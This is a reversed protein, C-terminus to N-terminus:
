LLLFSCGGAELSLTWLGFGRGPAAQAQTRKWKKRGLAWVPLRGRGPGPLPGPRRRPANLTKANGGSATRRAHECICASAHEWHLRMPAPCGLPLGARSGCAAHARRARPGPRTSASHLPPPSIPSRSIPFCSRSCGRASIHSELLEQSGPPARQVPSTALTPGPSIPSGMLPAAGSAFGSLAQPPTDGGM